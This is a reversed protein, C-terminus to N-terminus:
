RSDYACVRGLTLERNVTPIKRQSAQTLTPVCVQRASISVAHFRSNGQFAAVELNHNQLMNNRQLVLVSCNLVTLCSTFEIM